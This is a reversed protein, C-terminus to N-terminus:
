ACAGCIVRRRRNGAPAAAGQVMVRRRVYNLSKLGGRLSDEYWAQAMPDSFPTRSVFLDDYLGTAYTAGENRGIRFEAGLSASLTSPSYQTGAIAAAIGNVYLRQKTGAAGDYVAILHVWGTATSTINPFQGDIAWYIKNDTEWQINARFSASNGLGFYSRTGTATRYVWAGISVAPASAMPVAATVYDNSGDFDLCGYGGKRGRSGLWDTAPDM